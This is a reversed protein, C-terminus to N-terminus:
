LIESLSFIDRTQTFKQVDRILTSLEPASMRQKIVPDGKVAEILRSAHEIAPRDRDAPMATIHALQTLLVAASQEDQEFVAAFLQQRFPNDVSQLTGEFYMRDLRALLVASKGLLSAEARDRAEIATRIAEAKLAGMLKTEPDIFHLSTGIGVGDLGALVADYMQIPELGASVYCNLGREHAEHVLTCIQQHSLQGVINPNDRSGLIPKSPVENSAGDWTVKDFGAQKAISIGLRCLDIRDTITAAVGNNYALTEPRDDQCPTNINFAASLYQRQRDRIVNSVVAKMFTVAETVSMREIAIKADAYGNMFMATCASATMHVSKLLDIKFTGSEFVPRGIYCTCPADTGVHLRVKAANIAAPLRYAEVKEKNFEKDRDIHEVHITAGKMLTLDACSVRIHGEGPDTNFLYTHIDRFGSIGLSQFAGRIRAGQKLLTYAIQVGIKEEINSEQGTHRLDELVASTAAIFRNEALDEELGRALQSRRVLAAMSVDCLIADQRAALTMIGRSPAIPRDSILPTLIELITQYAQIAAEGQLQSDALTEVLSVLQPAATQLAPAFKAAKQLQETAEQALERTTKFQLLPTPERKIFQRNTKAELAIRVDRITEVVGQLAENGFEAAYISRSTRSKGTDEREQRVIERARDYASLDLREFGAYPFGPATAVSEPLQELAEVIQQQLERDISSTAVLAHNVIPGYTELKRFIDGHKSVAKVLNGDWSAGGAAIGAAIADTVFPHDGLFMLPRFHKAADIGQTRLLALPYQYGSSSSQTVFAFPQGGLDAISQYSSDQRVIIFGMYQATPTGGGEAAKATVLYALESGDELAKALVTSTLIGLDARGQRLLIEVEDFDKAPLVELELGISASLYQALSQFGATWGSRNPIALRLKQQGLTQATTASM